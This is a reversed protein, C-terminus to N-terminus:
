FHGEFSMFVQLLNQVEPESAIDNILSTLAYYSRSKKNMPKCISYHDVGEIVNYSDGDRGTGEYGIEITGLPGQM